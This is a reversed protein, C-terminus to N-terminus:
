GGVATADDLVLKKTYKYQLILIRIYQSHRVTVHSVSPLAKCHVAWFTDYAQVVGVIVRYWRTERRRELKKNQSIPISSQSVGFTWIIV